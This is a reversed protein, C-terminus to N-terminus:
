KKLIKCVLLIIVSVGLILFTENVFNNKSISGNFFNIITPIYIVIIFGLIIYFCVSTKKIRAMTKQPNVPSM